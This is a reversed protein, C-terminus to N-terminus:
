LNAIYEKFKDSKEQYNKFQEYSAAAPSLLCITNEKTIEDALIVAEKLTEVFYVKEKPLTKGINTGTTPMCIFHEIDANQLYNIFEQYNIGRDLGGFILTNVNQLTEISCITAEPITALVDVYYTIGNKEAIKELRYPLPEFAEITKKMKQEELNLLKGVTLAVMINKLNHKGLLKRPSNADYIKNGKFYVWNERMYTDAAQDEMNVCYKKGLFNHKKILKNLNENDSCYILIDNEDQYRAINMKCEQYHEITGAHDLHDEFINLIISMHPSKRLFELQHSSMEIVIQTKEDCKELREFVPTGINGMFLVNDNQSKIMEYILTSTTSKGKTGTVGIVNQRNVELLLEIQSTIKATDVKRNKLSIGPSKMICDFDNLYDLYHEGTIIQVSKDQKLKENEQLLENEDLITISINEGYKKLFEYTSKGEKGFGLIGIKKGNLKQSIKEIM